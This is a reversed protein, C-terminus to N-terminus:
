WLKGYDAAIRASESELGSRLGTTLIDSIRWAGGESVFVFTKTYPSNGTHQYVVPVKVREGDSTGPGFSVLKPEMDQTELIPDCGWWIVEGPPPNCAWLWLKAFEKTFYRVPVSNDGTYDSSLFSRTNQECASIDKANPSSASVGINGSDTAQCATLAALILMGCTINRFSHRM